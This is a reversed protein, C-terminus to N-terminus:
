DLFISLQTVAMPIIYTFRHDVYRYKLTTEYSPKNLLAGLFRNEFFPSQGEKKKKSCAWKKRIPAKKIRGDPAWTKKKKPAGM